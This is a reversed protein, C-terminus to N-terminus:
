DNPKDEQQPLVMRVAAENDVIALMTWIDVAYERRGDNYFTQSNGTFTKRMIGGSVMVRHMFRRFEPLKILAEIDSRDQEAILKGKQKRALEDETTRPKPRDIGM